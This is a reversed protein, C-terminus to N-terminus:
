KFSSRIADRLLEAIKRKDITVITHDAHASREGALVHALHSPGIGWNSGARRPVVHLHFHPVEQASGIGNNQYLLVGSPDFESVMAQAIRKAAAIIAGGESTTLDLVTPAHRRSLVICQGIEFQRGNLVTVTLETDEVVNWRDSAGNIIQCFYCPDNIPLQIPM